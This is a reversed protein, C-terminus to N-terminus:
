DIRSSRIWHFGISEFRDSDLRIRGCLGAGGKPNLIQPNPSLPSHKPNPTRPKPNRNLAASVQEESLVDSIDVASVNDDDLKCWEMTPLRISATYHGSHLKTGHHSVVPCTLARYPLAGRSVRRRQVGDSIGALIIIRGACQTQAPPMGHRVPHRWAQM